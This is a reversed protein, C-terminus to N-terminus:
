RWIRSITHPGMGHTAELDHVRMMPGQVLGGRYQFTMQRLTGDRKIFAVRRARRDAFLRALRQRRTM